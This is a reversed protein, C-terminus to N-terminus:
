WLGRSLLRLWLWLLWQNEDFLSVEYKDLLSVEYKDLLSVEYEDFLSQEDDEAGL